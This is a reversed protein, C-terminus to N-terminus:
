EKLFEEMKKQLADALAKYGKSNTGEWYEEFVPKMFPRPRVRVSPAKKWEGNIKFTLYKGKKAKIDAGNEVINAYWINARNLNKKTTLAGGTDTPIFHIANLLKGTRSNFASRAKEKTDTEMEKGVVVMLEKFINGLSSSFLKLQGELHKSKLDAEFKVM